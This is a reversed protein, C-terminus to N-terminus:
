EIPDVGARKKVACCSKRLSVTIPRGMDGAGLDVRHERQEAGQVVGVPVTGGVAGAPPHAVDDPMQYSVRLVGQTGPDHKAATTLSPAAVRIEDGEVGVVCQLDVLVTVEFPRRQSRLKSPQPGLRHPRQATDWCRHPTYAEVAPHRIHGREGEAVEGVDDGGPVQPHM